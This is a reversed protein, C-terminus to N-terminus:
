DYEPYFHLNVSVDVLILNDESLLLGEFVYKKRIISRRYPLTTTVDHVFIGFTSPVTTPETINDVIAPNRGNDDEGTKPRIAQSRRIAPANFDFVVVHRGARPEDPRFPELPYVFRSGFVNCIWVHEETPLVLLCAGDRLWSEWGVSVKSRPLVVHSRDINMVDNHGKTQLVETEQSSLIHQLFTSFPIFIVVDVQTNESDEVESPIQSGHSPLVEITIVFLRNNPSISFPVSEQGLTGTTRQHHYFFSGDYNRYSSFSLPSPESRILVQGFVAM